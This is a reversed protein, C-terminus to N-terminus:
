WWPPEHDLFFPCLSRAANMSHLRLLSSSPSGGARINTSGVHLRSNCRYERDDHACARACRGRGDFRAPGIGRIRPRRELANGDDSQEVRRGFTALELLVGGLFELPAADGGHLAM